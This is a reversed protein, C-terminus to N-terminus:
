AHPQMRIYVDGIISTDNAFARSLTSLMHARGIFLEAERRLTKLSAPQPEVAVVHAGLARFVRSRSGINAGIDFCLDGARVFQAYGDRAREDLTTWARTQTYLHRQELFARLPSPTLVEQGPNGV